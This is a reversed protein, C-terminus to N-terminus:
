RVHEFGHRELIAAGEEGALFRVFERAGAADRSRAVVAAYYLIAPADSAPVEYVVSHSGELRADTRYVIAADVSGTDVAALAARVNVTPVIRSRSGDWLGIKELWIRAYVGAPVAEPDGIAIRSVAASNLAAPDSWRARGRGPVIVVLTNRAVPVRSASEIAGSVRDMQREDASVFVDVPAGQLIQRALTNSGAFNFIVERGTERRWAGAVDTMADTLSVAAAVTLVPASRDRGSCAAAVVLFLAAAGPRLWM